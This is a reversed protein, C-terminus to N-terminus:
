LEPIRLFPELDAYPFVPGDKCIFRPGLQCHGCFGVACEMNRETSLYIRQPPIGLRQLEKVTFHMMIHPGCIFATANDPDLPSRPILVTVPGVIGRWQEGAADVTVLVELDFRGRLEQLQHVYLIDAPTRAGYLISVRGYRDRNALVHYIVPRLPALGIGGAVIVVDDGSASEVPWSSGYPGRVGLVTGGPEAACITRSVAGVSRVTHVLQEPQKPDGSISLPVEGIGFAYVMNFQGPAFAFGPRDGEPALELTCTDNTERHVRTVRFPEPRM